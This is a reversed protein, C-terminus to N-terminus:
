QLFPDIFRPYGSHFRFLALALLGFRAPSGATPQILGRDFAGFFDEMGQGMGNRGQLEKRGMM